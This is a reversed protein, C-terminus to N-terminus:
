ICGEENVKEIKTKLHPSKREHEFATELKMWQQLIFGPSIILANHWEQM